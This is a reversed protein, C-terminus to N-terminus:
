GVVKFCERLIDLAEQLEKMNITLAPTLTIVNGM